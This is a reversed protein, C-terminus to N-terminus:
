LLAQCVLLFSVTSSCFLCGLGMDGVCREWMGGAKPFLEKCGVERWPMEGLKHGVQVSAATVLRFSLM